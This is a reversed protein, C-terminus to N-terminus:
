YLKCSRRGVYSGRPGQSFIWSTPPMLSRTGLMTGQLIHSGRTGKLFVPTPSVCPVRLPVATESVTVGRPPGRFIRKLPLDRWLMHLFLVTLDGTAIAVLGPFGRVGPRGRSFYSGLCMRFLLIRAHCFLCIIPFRCDTWADGRWFGFHGRFGTFLVRNNSAPPNEQLIAWSAAALPKNAEDQASYEVICQGM